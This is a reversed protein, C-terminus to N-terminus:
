DYFDFYPDSWEIDKDTHYSKLSQMSFFFEVTQKNIKSLEIAKLAERSYKKMSLYVKNYVEKNQISSPPFTYPRQVNNIINNFKSKNQIM